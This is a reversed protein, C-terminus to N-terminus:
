PAFSSRIVCKRCPAQPLEVLRPRLHFQTRGNDVAEPAPGLFPDMAEQLLGDEVIRGNAQMRQVNGLVLVLSPGLQIEHNHGPLADQDKLHLAAEDLAPISDPGEAVPKAM